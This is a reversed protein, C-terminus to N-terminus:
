VGSSSLIGRRWADGMRFLPAPSILALWLLFRPDLSSRLPLLLGEDSFIQALWDLALGILLGRVIVALSRVMANASSFQGYRSKPLIRMYM